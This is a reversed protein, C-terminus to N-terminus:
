DRIIPTGDPDMVIVHTPLRNPAATITATSATCAASLALGAMFTAIRAINRHTMDDPDCGSSVRRQFGGSTWTLLRSGVGSIRSPRRHVRRPQAPCVSPDAVRDRRGSMGILPHMDTPPQAAPGIM